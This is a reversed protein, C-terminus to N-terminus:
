RISGKANELDDVAELRADAAGFEHHLRKADVKPAPAEVHSDNRPVMGPAEGRFLSHVSNRYSTETSAADPLNRLESEDGGCCPVQHLTSPAVVDQVDM